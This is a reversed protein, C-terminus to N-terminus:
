NPGKYAPGAYVCEMYNDRLATMHAGYQIVLDVYNDVAPRIRKYNLQYANSSDDDFIKETESMKNDIRAVLARLEETMYKLEDIQKKTEEQPIINIRM